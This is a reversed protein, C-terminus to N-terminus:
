GLDPGAIAYTSAPPPLPASPGKVMRIFGRQRTLGAEALVRTFAAQTEPVDIYVPGATKALADHILLRAIADDDAVLPGLQTARRGPRALLYGAPTGGATEAVRALHPAAQRCYRLVPARSVGFRVRDWAVLSDLDAPTLPRLPTAAESSVPAVAPISPARAWRSIAYRDTFGLAAYVRRGAETADLVPTLGAQECYALCHRLLRTALGRRRHAPTVVVMSIWAVRDEFPFVLATAVLLGDPEVYGVAHGHEIM